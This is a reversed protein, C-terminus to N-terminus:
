GFVIEGYLVHQLFVDGTEADDNGEIADNYHRSSNTKFSNLGRNLNEVNILSADIEDSYEPSNIKIWAERDGDIILKLTDYVTSNDGILKYEGSHEVIEYWYNSGGEFANIFLDLIQEKNLTTM